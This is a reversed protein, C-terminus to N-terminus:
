IMRFENKKTFYLNYKLVFVFNEVTLRQDDELKRTRQRVETTLSNFNSSDVELRNRISRIEEIINLQVKELQERQVHNEDIQKRLGEM